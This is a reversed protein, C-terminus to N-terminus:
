GYHRRLKRNNRWVRHKLYNRSQWLEDKFDWAQLDLGDDKPENPHTLYQENQDQHKRNDAFLKM